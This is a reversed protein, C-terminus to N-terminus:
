IVTHRMIPIVESEIFYLIIQQKYIHTGNGCNPDKWRIGRNFWFHTDPEGSHDGSTVIRYESNALWKSLKTKWEYYHMAMCPGIQSYQQISLTIIVHLYALKQSPPKKADFLQPRREDMRKTAAFQWDTCWVLTSWSPCSHSIGKRKYGSWFPETFLTFLICSSTSVLFHFSPSPPDIM